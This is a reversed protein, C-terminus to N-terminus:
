VYKSTYNVFNQGNGLMCISIQLVKDNNYHLNFTGTGDRSYMTHIITYIDHVIVKHLNSMICLTQVNQMIELKAYQKYRICQHNSIIIIIM